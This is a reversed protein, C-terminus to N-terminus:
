IDVTLKYSNDEKLGDYVPLTLLSHVSGEDHLYGGCLDVDVTVSALTDERLDGDNDSHTDVIYKFSPLIISFSHFPLFQCNQSTQYNLCYTQSVAWCVM